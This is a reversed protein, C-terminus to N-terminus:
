IKEILKITSQTVYKKNIISFLILKLDLMLQFSPNKSKKLQM